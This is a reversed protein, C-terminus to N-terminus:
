PSKPLADNHRLCDWRTQRRLVSKGLQLVQAPKSVHRTSSIGINGEDFKEDVTEVPDEIVPIRQFSAYAQEAEADTGQGSEADSESLDITDKGMDIWRFNGELPETKVHVKVDEDVDIVDQEDGSDTLDIVHNQLDPWLVEVDSDDEEIKIVGAMSSDSIVKEDKSYVEYTLM